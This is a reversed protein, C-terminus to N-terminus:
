KRANRKFICLDAPLSWMKSENRDGSYVVTRDYIRMESQFRMKRGRFELFSWLFARVIKMTLGDVHRYNELTDLVSFDAHPDARDANYRVWDAVPKLNGQASLCRWLNSRARQTCSEANRHRRPPRHAAGMPSARPAARTFFTRVATQRFLLSWGYAPTQAAAEKAALLLLLPAVRRM